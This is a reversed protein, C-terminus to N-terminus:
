VERLLVYMPKEEELANPYPIQTTGIITFGNALYFPLALGKQMAELYIVKKNFRKAQLIVFELTKKGIGAGTYENQIYIKDLYLAEAESYNAISKHRTFKLIGAYHSNLKILYLFTNEDQAEKLLVQNTFSNKLYTSTDGNPWLHPYHQNYAKTGVNIYKDYLEPVLPEFRVVDKM